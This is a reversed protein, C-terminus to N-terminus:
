RYPNWSPPIGNRDIVAQAEPSLRRYRDVAHPPVNSPNPPAPQTTGQNQAPLPQAPVTPVTPSPQQPRGGGYKKEVRGRYENSAQKQGDGQNTDYGFYQGDRRGANSIPDYYDWRASSGGSEGSDSSGGLSRWQSRVAGTQGMAEQLSEPGESYRANLLGMQYPGMANLASQYQAVRAEFLNGAAQGQAGYNELAANTAVQNQLNQMGAGRNAALARVQARFSPDNINGGTAAMQERLAELQASEAGAIGREGLAMLRSQVDETYPGTEMRQRYMDRVAQLEPDDMIQEGYGVTLDRLEQRDRDRKEEASLETGADEAGAPKPTTLRLGDRRNQEKLRWLFSRWHAPVSSPVSM